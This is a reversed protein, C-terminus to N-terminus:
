VSINRGSWASSGNTSKRSAMRPHKKRQWRVRHMAKGLLMPKSTTSKAAAAAVASVADGDDGGDDGGGGKKRAAAALASHNATVRSQFQSWGKWGWPNEL